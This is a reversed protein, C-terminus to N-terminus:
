KSFNDAQRRQYVEWGFRMEEDNMIRNSVSDRENQGKTWHRHPFLLHPAHRVVGRTIAGWMWDDDARAFRYEPYVFYGLTNYYGRTEIAILFRDMGHIGDDVAIVADQTLCDIDAVMALLESDWHESCGIDDSMCVILWTEKDSIKALHNDVEVITNTNAISLVNRCFKPADTWSKIYEGFTPDSKDVGILYEIEDPNDSKTYWEHATQIALDARGRSPHILSIKM